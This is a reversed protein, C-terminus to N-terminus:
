CSALGFFVYEHVEKVTMNATVNKPKAKSNKKEIEFSTVVESARNVVIPKKVVLYIDDPHLMQLRMAEKEAEAKTAYDKINKTGTYPNNGVVVYRKEYVPREGKSPVKKIKVIEYEVVGLDLVNAVWKVSNDNCYEQVKKHKQASSMGKVNFPIVRGLSCTSITGNYADNGCRYRAEDVLDAFCESPDAGEVYHLFSIAGM